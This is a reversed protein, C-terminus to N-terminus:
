IKVTEKRGSGLLAQRARMLRSRVTNLPIKLAASIEEYSLGEIERLLLCAKFEPNLGELLKNLRIRNDDQDIAEGSERYDPVTEIVTDYDARNGMEKKIKYFRNIATNVAIRYVWTKFSSRFQFDKLSHYIKMFVDQTVEQADANNRTIKLALNYVFSSAIKYIEEFAAMDGQSAKSLIESTINQM